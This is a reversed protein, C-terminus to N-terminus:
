TLLEVLLALATLMAQRVIEDKSQPGCRLEVHREAGDRSIAAVHVLGVENGDEDPEPGAVGTV